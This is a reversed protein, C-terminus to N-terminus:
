PPTKSETTKILEHIQDVLDNPIAVSLQYHEIKFGRPTNQIVGSAQCLGMGTNLQEDFWIFRKDASVYIHRSVPTLTWASPTAFYKKAWVIFEERTWRETKDTGIYIGDVAIKDFYSPRSHAADDHWQDLFVGIQRKYDADDVASHAFPSAFILLLCTALLTRHM